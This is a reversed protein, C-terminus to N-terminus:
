FVFRAFATENLVRLDPALSDYEVHERVAADVLDLEHDALARAVVEHRAVDAGDGDFEARQGHQRVTQRGRLLASQLAELVADRAVFEVAGDGGREPESVDFRELNSM